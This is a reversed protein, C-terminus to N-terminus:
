ILGLNQCQRLNRDYTSKSTKFINDLYFDEGFYDVAEVFGSLRMATKIDKTRQFAVEVNRDQSFNISDLKLLERLESHAAIINEQSLMESALTNQFGLRAAFSRISDADTFSYEARIIGKSQAQLDSNLKKACVQAHKDYIRITRSKNKFYVTENGVTSRLLRSVDFNRYRAIVTRVQKADFKLNLAYDVRHMEASFSDFELGIRIEINNTTIELAQRIESENPLQLNAGFLLEPVSLDARLRYTKNWTEYFTLRPEHTGKLGNSIWKISDIKKGKKKIFGRETLEEDPPSYRYSHVLAISDVSYLM